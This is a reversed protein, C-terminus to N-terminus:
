NTPQSIYSLADGAKSAENSIAVDGLSLIGILRKDHNIVPLRRIQIEGMNRTVDDVDQDDFCYKIDATMIKRIQTSPPMGKAIGRVVIDRDTIMGVLRDNEGVPMAGTDLKAMALAVEQLTNSPSAVRVDRTMVESVKM